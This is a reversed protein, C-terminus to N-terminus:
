PPTTGRTPALSSAASDNPSRLTEQRSPALETPRRAATPRAQRKASAVDNAPAVSDHSKGRLLPAVVNRSFQRGMAGIHDGVNGERLWKNDYPMQVLRNYIEKDADPPVVFGCKGAADCKVGDMTGFTNTGPGLVIDYTSTFAYMKGRVHALAKSLDYEPSLAPALLVVTDVKTGEPLKELAWAVIGAGGSHATLVIRESPRERLRAVIADAVAQSQQLNRKRAFLAALGPADGSWDVVEVEGAFGADRLGELLQRDMGHFGSIGPFHILYDDSPKAPGASASTTLAAFLILALLYLLARSRAPAGATAKRWGREEMRKKVAM